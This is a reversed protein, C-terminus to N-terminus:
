PTLDPDLQKALFSFIIIRIKLPLRFFTIKKTTRRLGGGEGELKTTMRKESKETKVGMKLRVIKQPKRLDARFYNEIQIIM